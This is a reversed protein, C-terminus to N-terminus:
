LRRPESVVLTRCVFVRRCFLSRGCMLEIRVHTCHACAHLACMLVIHMWDHSGILYRFVWDILCEVFWCGEAVDVAAGELRDHIERGLGRTRQHSTSVRSSLAGFVSTPAPSALVFGRRGLAAFTM